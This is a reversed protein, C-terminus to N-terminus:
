VKNWVEDDKNDWLEQATKESLALLDNFDDQCHIAKEVVNVIQKCRNLFDYEEQPITVTGM